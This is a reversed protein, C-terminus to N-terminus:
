HFARAGPLARHFTSPQAVHFDGFVHFVDHFGNDTPSVVAEHFGRAGPLARHSASPAAHFDSPKSDKALGAASFSLSALVALAPLRNLNPSM